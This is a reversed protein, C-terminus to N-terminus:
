LGVAKLLVDAAGELGRRPHTRGDGVLPAEEVILLGTGAEVRDKLLPQLGLFYPWFTETRTVSYALDPSFGVLQDQGFVRGQEAREVRVGRGGKVILQAPGHFMLYRLQLTLWAHLSGLRWHTTIRLPQGLPQVVAALARPQLVYAADPPLHLVAVEAFPDRVASVTTTEGEGEIRTLFALGSALSSLPHRWDLLLQTAKAGASSTSQLFGQRVLLKEGAALRIAASTASAQPLAQPALMTERPWPLRVAPRREALPAFVYYLVLRILYPAAIISALLVAARLLISRLTGSLDIRARLIAAEAEAGAEVYAGQAATLRARLTAVRALASRRADVLSRAKACQMRATETLQRAEAALVNRVSRDLAHRDNFRRVEANAAECRQTGVAIAAPTPAMVGHLAARVSERHAAGELLRIEGELGTRRLELRKRELILSPRVSALWGPRLELQDNVAAWQTQVHGLREKIRAASYGDIEARRLRFTAVAEGKQQQFALSIARPSMLEDGLRGGGIAGLVLPALALALVLFLYLGGKALLWRVISRM